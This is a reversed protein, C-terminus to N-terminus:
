GERCKRVGTLFFGDEDFAERTAAERGWYERFVTPGRVGLQGDAGVRVEVGPLPVGM